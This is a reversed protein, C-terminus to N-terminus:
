IMIRVTAPDYLTPDYTLLHPEMPIAHQNKVGMNLKFFFYYQVFYFRTDNKETARFTIEKTKFTM